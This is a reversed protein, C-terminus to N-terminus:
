PQLMEDWRWSRTRPSQLARQTWVAGCISPAPRRCLARAQTLGAQSVTSSSLSSIWSSFFLTACQYSHALEVLVYLHKYFLNIACCFIASNTLQCVCTVMFDTGEVSHESVSPLALSDSPDFSCRRHAKYKHPPLLASRAISVRLFFLSLFLTLTNLFRCISCFRGHYLKGM